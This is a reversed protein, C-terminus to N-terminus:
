RRDTSKPPWAIGQQTYTGSPHLRIFDELAAEIEVQSQIQRPSDWTATQLLENVGSVKAAYIEAAYIADAQQLIKLTGADEIRSQSSQVGLNKLKKGFWEQLTWEFSPPDDIQSLTTIRPRSEMLEQASSPRNISVDYQKMGPYRVSLNISSAAEIAMKRLASRASQNNPGTARTGARSKAIQMQWTSVVEPADEVRPKTLSDSFVGVSVEVPAYDGNNNSVHGHGSYRLCLGDQDLQQSTPRWQERGKLARILPISRVLPTHKLIVDGLHSSSSLTYLRSPEVIEASESLGLLIALDEWQHAQLEEVGLAIDIDSPSSIDTDQNIEGQLQKHFEHVAARSFDGFSAPNENRPYLSGPDQRM